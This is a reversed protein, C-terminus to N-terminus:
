RRSYWIPSNYVRKWTTIEADRIRDDEISASVGYQVTVGDLLTANNFHTHSTM